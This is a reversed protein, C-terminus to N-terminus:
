KIYKKLNEQRVKEMDLRELSVERMDPVEWSTNLRESLGIDQPTRYDPLNDRVTLEERIAQLYRFGFEHSPSVYHGEDWENWNDIMMIKKGWAGDPLADTMEKMRRLCKRYDDPELYWMKMKHFPYGMDIWHQTTRPTPDSFCSPTPIYRMPDIDLRTKLLECQKNIIDEAEPYHNPAVYGSNYGFRFDYGRALQENNAESTPRTDCCAFIMGDFGCNKAYERCNDFVAKQKEPTGFVSVLREPYYIFLVPKNDIKLYNPRSFYNEVWFPMLNDIIDNEDTTGWRPMNEYMIAFKMMDGYKANFLADHICHGCRLKEAKVPKKMDELRRYWCYIFCNIGHELAWKIEWDCVEPNEEDYYGMLPTREPYSHLDDFGGHIEAAGKKWAAYYHAAVIRDSTAPQPKPVYDSLKINYM